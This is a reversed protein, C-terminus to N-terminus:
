SGPIETEKALGAKELRTSGGATDPMQQPKRVNVLMCLCWEFMPRRQSNYQWPKTKYQAVEYDM